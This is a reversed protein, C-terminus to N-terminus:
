IKRTLYLFHLKRSRKLTFYHFLFILSFASDDHRMPSCRVICSQRSIQQQPPTGHETHLFFWNFSKMFFFITNRARRKDDKQFWNLKKFNPNANWQFELGAKAENINFFPFPLLCSSLFLLSLIKSTNFIKKPKNHM